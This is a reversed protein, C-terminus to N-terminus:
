RMSTMAGSVMFLNASIRRSSQVEEGQSAFVSPDTSSQAFVHQEGHASTVRAESQGGSLEVGLAGHVERVKMRLLRGNEVADTKAPQRFPHDFTLQFFTLQPWKLQRVARHMHELRPDEGPARQAASSRGQKVLKEIGSFPSRMNM